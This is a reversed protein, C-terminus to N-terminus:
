SIAKVLEITFSERDGRMKVHPDKQWRNGRCGNKASLKLVVCRMGHETRMVQIISIAAKNGHVCFILHVKAANLGRAAKKM